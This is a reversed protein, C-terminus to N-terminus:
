LGTGGHVPIDGPEGGGARLELDLWPSPQPAQCHGAVQRGMYPNETGALHWWSRATSSCGGQMLRELQLPQLPCSAPFPISGELPIQAEDGRSAPMFQLSHFAGETPKCHSTSVPRDAESGGGAAAEAPPCGDANPPVQQVMHHCVRYRTDSTYLLEHNHSITARATDGLQEQKSEGNEQTYRSCHLM